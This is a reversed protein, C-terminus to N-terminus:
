GHGAALRAAEVKCDYPLNPEACFDPWKGTSRWYRALGIRSMLQMFRPDHRMAATEPSFLSGPQMDQTTLPGNHAQAVAFADDVFGLRPLCLIALQMGGPQTSVALLDARARARLAPSPTKLALVCDREATLLSPTLYVRGANLLALAEDWNQLVSAVELRNLRAYQNNPWSRAIQAAADAAEQARGALASM